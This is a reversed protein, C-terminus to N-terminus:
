SQLDMLIIKSSILSRSLLQIIISRPYGIFPCDKPQIIPSTRTSGIVDDQVFYIMLQVREIM